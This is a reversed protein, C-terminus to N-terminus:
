DKKVTNMFRLSKGQYKGTHVDIHCSRCLPVQKRNIRAMMKDFPSLKVNITRIHRLHHMEVREESGCNACAMDLSSITSIKRDVISFPDYFGSAGLFSMPSRSLVPGIFSIIKVKGDKKKISMKIHKGYRSLFSAKNLKLKRSITKRLSERLIWVIKNLRPRNDAFTYYNTIGQLIALYRLIIDKVPLVTFKGISHPFWEKRKISLFGKAGLKSVLEPIPATMWLNGTPMRRKGGKYTKLAMAGKNSAKNKILVGLFSARKTRANTILTKEESLELGITALFEKIGLKILESTKRTGWVGILWDDAYRVYRIRTVEPNAILSKIKRRLKIQTLLNAKKIDYNLDTKDLVSVVKKLRNIRMTYKHYVPNTLYPKKGMGLRAYKKRLEEIYIDLEHLVLNSLIPSIIGGQPVGTDPAVYRKKSGDWDIYGAKAFKWYLHFFRDEKFHNKLLSELIRLDINDFFGKIDGEIFWSVGKWERIEKLATHCGRKPRFGHSTDMFKPELIAEVVLKMAQQIIKDRPSSIGLPRMKGNAKPIYVRRAPKPNYSENRLALSTEAVWDNSLGDLTPNDTGKTMNGPNSKILGYALKILDPDSILKFANTCRGMEDYEFRNAFSEKNLLTKNKM